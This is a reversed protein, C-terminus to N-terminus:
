ALTMDHNLKRNQSLDSKKKKTMINQYIAM